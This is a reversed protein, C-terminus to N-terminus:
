ANVLQSEVITAGDLVFEWERVAADTGYALDAHKKIFAEPATISGNGNYEVFRFQVIGTGRKKDTQELDSLYKNAPNGMVLRVKVTTLHNSKAVRLTEGNTGKVLEFNEDDVTAGVAEGDAFREITYNGIYCAANKIDFTMLM